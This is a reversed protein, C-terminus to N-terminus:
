HLCGQNIVATVRNSFEPSLTFDHRAQERTRRGSQLEGLWYDLGAKDAGRRMFADYLDSVFDADNRARNAYEASSVFSSSISDAQAVVAGSGQCQADRFRGVWFGFGGDDPLRALLGRYFDGAMDVEARVQTNGFIARTFDRFEASFMFNVLVAVRPLGSAIQDKWYARGEADAERNFFTRYLDDIFGDDSRGQNVYEPSVFFAAAMAYWTENVNSGRDVAAQAQAAWFDHGSAEPERGLISRYFHQVLSKEVTASMAVTHPSGDADSAISLTGNVAVSSNLPVTTDVPGTFTLAITCSAAAALAGCDHSASFGASTAVSAIAVPDTGTNTVTVAQAPSTTGMSQAGFSLTTTSLTLRRQQPSVTPQVAFSRVVQAAAAFTGDGDQDAAISCTGSGALTVTTGSTTCVASTLSSFRVALGSSAAASVAFAPDGQKRDPLAAFSISQSQKVVDLTFTQQADPPVGNSATVTVIYRGAYGPAPTGSFTGASSFGMGAAYPGSLQFIPAPSGTATFQFRGFQGVVFTTSPPNTFMPAMGAVGIPLTVLDIWARDECPPTANSSSCALGGSTAARWRLTHRGATLKYRYLTWDAQGGVQYALQGDVWFDFLGTPKPSLSTRYAFVVYGESFDATFDLASVFPGNSNGLYASGMSSTGEFARDSAAAWPAMGAPTSYGTPLGAPPPWTSAVVVAANPGDAYVEGSGSAEFLNVLFYENDEGALGDALASVTITRSSTDGDGWTLVGSAAVYDSGAAANGDLTRWRVQATGSANGQRLVTLTTAAGEDVAYAPAAFRLFTPPPPPPDVTPKMASATARYDNVAQANDASNADSAPLGCAHTAGFSPTCAVRPNSYKFVLTSQTFYAMIDRFNDNSPTACQPDFTCGGNAPPLMPNCSLTGGTCFAYGFAYPRVGGQYNPSGGSQFASTNRDHAMGLVHGLEHAFVYDCGTGTCGAYAYAYAPNPPDTGLFAVGGDSAARLLIVVDAGAANRMPEIHGFTDADFGCGTLCGYTVAGLARERSNVANYDVEVSRVLRWRLAIESDALAANARDVLYQLLTQVNAEGGEAATFSRTYVIMLDVDYTPSPTSKSRAVMDFGERPIFASPANLPMRKARAEPPVTLADNTGLPPGPPESAPDILRDGSPGPEIRWDGAPTSLVGYTGKPGRTLIARHRTGLTDHKGIWTQIGQGHDLVVDRVFVHRTGDPLTLETVDRSPSMEMRPAVALAPSAMWSSAIALLWAALSARLARTSM